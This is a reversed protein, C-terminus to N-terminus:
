MDSACRLKFIVSLMLMQM